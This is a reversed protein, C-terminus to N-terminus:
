SGSVKGFIDDMIAAARTVKDAIQHRYVTRTVNSDVHGAADAIAEIDVGADSLVSVFSHRQEHCHWDSGMGARKCVQKFQKNVDSQWRPRGADSCFVIGRSDYHRAWAFVTLPRCRGCRACRM